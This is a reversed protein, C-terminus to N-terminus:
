VGVEYYPDLEEKFARRRYYKKKYFEILRRKGNEEGRSEMVEGLMAVLLAAKHYSHRFSGGVIGEVRQEVETQVWSLYRSSEEESFRYIKKWNEFLIQNWDENISYMGLKCCTDQFMNLGAKQLRQGDYLGLLFLPVIVGKPDRTWGLSRSIGKYQQYISEWDGSLFLIADKEKLSIQNRRWQGAEKPVEKESEIWLNEAYLAAEKLMERDETVGCLELFHFATTNSYYTEKIAYQYLEIQGLNKAANAAKQAINGRIELSRPLNELAWLASQLAEDNRKEEQLVECVKLHLLPHKEGSKKAVASFYDSDGLLLAADAMLIAAEDAEIDELYIMSVSLFTDIGKVEEPGATFIEELTFKLYHNRLLVGYIKQVRTEGEYTQYYLYLLKLFAEKRKVRIVEKDILEELSFMVFEEDEESYAYFDLLLLPELLSLADKYQMRQNLDLALAYYKEFAKAIGYADSFVEEYEDDYPSFQYDIYTEVDFHMSGDEIKQCWTAFEEHDIRLDKELANGTLLHLYEERREEAVQLLLHRLLDDKRSEKMAKMEQEIRKAYELYNM